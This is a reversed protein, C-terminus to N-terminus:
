GYSTEGANTPHPATTERKKTAVIITWTPVKEAEKFIAKSIVPAENIKTIIVQVAIKLKKINEPISDDRSPLIPPSEDAHLIRM